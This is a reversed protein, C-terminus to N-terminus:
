NRILAKLRYEAIGGYDYNYVRLNTTKQSYNFIIKEAGPRKVADKGYVDYQASIKPDVSSIIQYNM